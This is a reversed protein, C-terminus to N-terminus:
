APTKLAVAGPTFATVLDMKGKLLKVGNGSMLLWTAAALTLLKKSEDLVDLYDYATGLWGYSSKKESVYLKKDKVKVLNNESVQGVIEDDVLYWGNKALEKIIRVAEILNGGIIADKLQKCHAKVDEWLFRSKYDKVPTKYM